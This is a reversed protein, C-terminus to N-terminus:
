LIVALFGAIAAVSEAKKPLVGLIVGATVGAAILSLAAKLRRRSADDDFAAIGTNM